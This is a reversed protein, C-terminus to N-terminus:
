AAAAAPEVVDVGVVDDIPASRLGSLANRQANVEARAKAERQMNEEIERVRALHSARLRRASVALNYHAQAQSFVTGLIRLIMAATLLGVLLGALPIWSADPLPIV